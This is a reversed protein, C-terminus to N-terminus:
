KATFTCVSTTGTANSGLYLGHWATTANTPASTSYKVSYSSGSKMGTATFLALTSNVNSEFSYTVLNNGSADALTYYRGTSYSISSTYFNYGQKAGSITSSSSGGGQAGGASIAIGTGTIQIYSNNDCDLGEEPSSKTTYAFVVGNGITIAGTRGANSDVADNGYGYCVTVGGNFYINGSSNICDDYCKLYHKGGEIYIATKSELGEAGNTTTSIETEGGYVYATGMVKIGKSSSGSSSDGEPRGPWGGGGGSSSGGLAAGTTSVKLTPGNGTDKNGQTYTGNVKIGKGGSGTATFTITGANLATNGDSKLCKATYSASNTGTQGAGSVTINLTGGNTTIGGNASIGKGAAGSNNITITGANQVFDQAKIGTSYSADSNIVMMAGSPTLTINGGTVTVTGKAKISKSMEGKNKVTITGGALTINGYAKIGGANYGTGNDESTDSTGGYSATVNSLSYTRTTGSTTYSNSISYYVDSGSTPATFNASKITYTTNRSTYNDSKFYYTGGDATQFDYVYFTLTSYGSSKSVTQTLEQVLTGDNKYLYVKSWAGTSGGFGGTNGPKSVYVKYSKAPEDSGTGPTVNEATGGQGDATINITTTATTEDISINGEASLGKGGDATNNVTINGGTITIDKDAKVATVYSLDNNENTLSGTQTVTVTGGSQVYNTAVKFGKAANGTTAIDITGGSIIVEGTNEVEDVVTGNDDTEQSVQMADDGVDKVTINGGKISIYQNVNFGDGVAGLVNITGTTKKLEVYEKGWFAHNSNGTINLTGTGNIESHGKVAFCGKQTGNKGDVLNNTTGDIIEIAIRKGDRINIAASDPNTIDVGNLLLTIKYSGDQYFSGNSTSGELTYIYESAVTADQLVAVHAGNVSATIHSAINGAVKVQATNGSYTVIINDDELEENNVCISDVENLAYTKGLINLQTDGYPMKGVTETAYAYKVNGVCVWMTQQAWVSAANLLILSIFLLSKNM